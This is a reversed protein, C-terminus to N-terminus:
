EQPIVSTVETINHKYKFIIYYRFRFLLPGVATPSQTSDYYLAKSVEPISSSPPPEPRKPALADRESM